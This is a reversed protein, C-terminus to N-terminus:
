VLRECQIERDFSKGEPHAVAAVDLLAAHVADLVVGVPM